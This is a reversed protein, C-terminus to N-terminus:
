RRDERREERGGQRESRNGQRGEQRQKRQEKKVQLVFPDGKSVASPLPAIPAAQAIHAYGGLLFSGLMIAIIKLKIM